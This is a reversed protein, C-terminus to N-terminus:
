RAASRALKVVKAPMAPQDCYRAWDTMLHRRKELLDGRRYAAETENSVVHALAMECVERTFNTMEAAWDRFTSRFGHVTLDAKTRRVLQLMAMNSLPTNPWRGRFVYEDGGKIAERVIAVARPSLPVRHERHAKMREAPVTWMAADLDFETPKAGLVEGTRAATLITFELARAPLGDTARLGHVFEGVQVYPLAPHHQVTKRKGMQPLLQDLHSRLRAPNDGSRFTRVTAWALVKEIRGRLRRATEPKTTWIPELVKLVHGTDIDQVPLAGMVPGAYTTLTNTWQEGHKENKWSARHAAIYQHACDSFSITKARALAEGARAAARAEIPDIRDVLLARQQAARERAQALTVSHLPGLGMERSRGNLTYTFLWSKTLSPSVQLQLGGGDPFYGPKRIAMVERVTLRQM